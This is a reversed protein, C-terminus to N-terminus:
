DLFLKTSLYRDGGDTLFVVILKGRNEPRVAVQAAAWVAAGGSIGILVGESGSVERGAALADEDKVQLIEDM